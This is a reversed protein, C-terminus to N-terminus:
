LPEPVPKERGLRRERYLTYLGSAVIIAAGAWTTPPPRVGWLWGAWCCRGSSHTYDFPVVPSVPAFRLAATLFLQGVGASCASRSWCRGPAGDHM